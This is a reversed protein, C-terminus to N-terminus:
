KLVAIFWGADKQMEQGEEALVKLHLVIAEEITEDQPFCGTLAPMEVRYHDEEAEHVIVTYGVMLKVDPYPLHVGM